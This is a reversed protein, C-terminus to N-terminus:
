FKLQATFATFLIDKGTGSDKLFRGAKFWTFETRFYIFNNPTYVLDCSFQRGVYKQSSNKGSYILAVNPGYIGDNRSFRWFVDYDMSLFMKTSLGFTLSPHIDFLNAPGILSVLGFYGGRPFLPHLTQLKDDGYKADGSIWETKLGVEPKFKVNSFKYGTNVSFSWAKIDKNAFKGFQYLGEIDYRWDKRSNWVRSGITHRLEKGMGDDFTAKKNHLGFYYLDVNQLVPLQNRVIYLGWFRNSKIFGDDFIKQKSRVYHSFFLDAKVLTSKYILKAADFSHRNNPGDRVSVLRQSGYMFEQRGIRVILEPKRRLPFGIDFFAQHIDLQNEDVPSPVKVKGNAFSSQLQIFTRFHQGAHLDAHVLYRTLLYGDKDEPADGWSENRFRLYQYRIDGGISIYSSKMKSLRSFKTRKYWNRSSDSKLISYDEDYRLPKFAPVNQSFCSMSIITLALLLPSRM